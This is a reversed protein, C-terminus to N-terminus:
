RARDQEAPAAAEVGGTDPRAAVRRHLAARAMLHAGVPATLFLFFTILLTETELGKGLSFAHIVWAMLIGGIGLTTAKTPGHLRLYFDPLRLLGFSGVVAFFTGFLLAFATLGEVILATTNAEAPM